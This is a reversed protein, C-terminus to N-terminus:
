EIAMVKATKGTEEAYFIIRDKRRTDAGMSGSIQGKVEMNGPVKVMWLISKMNSEASADIAIVLSTVNDGAIGYHRLKTICKSSINSLQIGMILTDTGSDNERALVVKSTISVNAELVASINLHKFVNGSSSLAMIRGDKLLLWLSSTHNGEKGRKNTNGTNQEFKAMHVIPQGIKYELSPSNGTDKFAMFVDDSNSQEKGNKNLSSVIAYVMSNTGDFMLSQKMLPISNPNRKSGRLKKYAPQFLLTDTLTMMRKKQRPESYHIHQQLNYYWAVTIINAMRDHIDIAYLRQMVLSKAPDDPLFETLIYFRNGNVVPQSTPIFTGNIGDVSANLFIFADPIANTERVSIGGNESIILLFHTSVLTISLIPKMGKVPIIPYLKGDADYHVLRVGDSGTVDGYNDVMPLTPFRLVKDRWQITGNSGFLSVYGKDESFPGNSQCIISVDNAVCGLANPVPDYIFSTEWVVSANTRPVNLYMSFTGSPRCGFLPCGEIFLGDIRGICLLCLLLTRYMNSVPCNLAILSFVCSMFNSIIQIFKYISPYFPM